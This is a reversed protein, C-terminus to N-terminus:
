IKTVTEFQTAEEPEHIARSSKLSSVLAPFVPPRVSDVNWGLLFEAASGCVRGQCPGMGCRTHLKAARWSLHKRAAGYPVDECRCLLTEDKPLAKLEPRLAFAKALRTAFRSLKRRQAFLGRALEAKGAAALGAIQGEVLSLELGGIGTPEGACFINELSTQQFDDVSVLGNM